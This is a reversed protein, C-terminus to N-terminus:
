NQFCIKICTKILMRKYAYTSGSEQHFILCLSFMRGALFNAYRRFIRKLNLSIVIILGM